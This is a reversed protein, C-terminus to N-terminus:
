LFGGLEDGLEDDRVEALGDGEEDAEAEADFSVVSGEDHQSPILCVEEDGFVFAGGDVLTPPLMRTM